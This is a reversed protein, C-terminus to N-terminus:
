NMKNDMRPHRGYPARAQGQTLQKKPFNPEPPNSLKTPLILPILLIPPDDPAQIGARLRPIAKLHHL